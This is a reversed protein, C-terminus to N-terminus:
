HTAADEWCLVDALSSLRALSLLNAPAGQIRMPQKFQARVERDLHLIVALASTDVEKLARLDAIVGTHESNRGSQRSLAAQERLTTRHRALEASANALAVRESFGLHILHDHM